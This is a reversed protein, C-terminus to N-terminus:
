LCVYPLLVAARLAWGRAVRSHGGEAAAAVAAAVVAGRKHGSSRISRSCAAVEAANPSAASAPAWM